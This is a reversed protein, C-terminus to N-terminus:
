GLEEHGAQRISRMQTLGTTAEVAKFYTTLNKAKKADRAADSSAMISHFILFNACM